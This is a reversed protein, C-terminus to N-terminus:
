AKGLVLDVVWCGRVHPGPGRCHDLVEGSTCGADELADALVPMPGFDREAYMGRALGVVAETRWSPDFAEALFLDGYIERLLDAYPATRQPTRDRPAGLVGGYDGFTSFAAEYASWNLFRSGERGLAIRARAFGAAREEESAESDAVRAALDLLGPLEPDDDGDRYLEWAAAAALRLRRKDGTQKWAFRLMPVPNATRTWDHPTM